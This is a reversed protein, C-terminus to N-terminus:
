NTGRRKRRSREVAAVGSDLPNRIAWATLKWAYRWRHARCAAILEGLNQAGARRQFQLLNKELLDYTRRDGRRRADDRIARISRVAAVRGALGQRTVNADHRRYGVLAEDVSTFDGQLLMRLILDNDEAPEMETRCGGASRYIDTRITLTTIRPLEARGALLDDIGVSPANWRGGTPVGTADMYWGGSSVAVASPQARIAELQRAIRSPHWVDDDDLFAVWATHTRAVGTNRAVSLGSATQRVYSVGLEAAIAKLGPEPAGDDVLIIESVPSSQARVSAVAENLYPGGRNTPM